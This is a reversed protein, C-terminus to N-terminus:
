PLPMVRAPFYSRILLWVLLVIQILVLVTLSHVATLTWHFRECLYATMPQLLKKELALRTDEQSCYEVFKEVLQKMVM